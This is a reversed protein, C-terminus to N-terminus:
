GLGCVRWSGNQKVLGFTEDASQKEAGPVTIESLVTFSGKDGETKVDKVSLAFEPMGDVPKETAAFVERIGAMNEACVVPEFEGADVDRGSSNLGRQYLEVFEKAVDDPEDSGGTLLFVGAGAVALVLVGAVILLILGNRRKNDKTTV